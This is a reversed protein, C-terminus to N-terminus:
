AETCAKAANRWRTEADAAGAGPTPRQVRQEMHLLMLSNWVDPVGPLCRPEAPCCVAFLQNLQKFQNKFRLLM